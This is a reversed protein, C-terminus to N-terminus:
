FILPQLKMTQLVSEWARKLISTGVLIWIPALPSPAPVSGVSPRFAARSDCSSIAALTSSLPVSISKMVAPMPPPVPVPAEGTMALIALSLPMRVTATTVMGKLFSPFSDCDLAM